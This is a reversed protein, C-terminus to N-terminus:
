RRLILIERIELVGIFATPFSGKAPSRAVSITNDHIRNLDFFGNRLKRKFGKVPPLKGKREQAREAVRLGGDLPQAGARGVLGIDAADKLAAVDMDRGAIGTLDLGRKAQQAVTRFRRRGLGLEDERRVAIRKLSLIPRATLRDCAVIGIERIM